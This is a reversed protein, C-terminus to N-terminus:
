IVNPRHKSLINKLSSYDALDGYELVINNYVINNHLIHRINDKPSRWRVLGVIKVDPHNQIIYDALHSGVFGTLGTILVRKITM